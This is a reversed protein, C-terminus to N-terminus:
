LGLGCWDGPWSWSTAFLGFLFVSGIVAVAAFRVAILVLWKTLELNEKAFRAFSEVLPDIIKALTNLAPLLANGITIKLNTFKNDLITLANETTDARMQYEHLMSGTYGTQDGALKSASQYINLRGVRKTIDQGLGPQPERDAIEIM